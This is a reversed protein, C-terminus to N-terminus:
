EITAATNCGCRNAPTSLKSGWILCLRNERDSQRKATHTSDNQGTSLLEGYFISSCQAVMLLRELSLWITKWTGFSRWLNQRVTCVHFYISSPLYNFTRIAGALPPSRSASSRRYRLLDGFICGLTHRSFLCNIISSNLYASTAAFLLSKLVSVVNGLVKRTTTLREIVRDLVDVTPKEEVIIVVKLPPLLFWPEWGNLMWHTGRKTFSIAIWQLM